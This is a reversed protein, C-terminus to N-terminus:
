DHGSEVLQMAISSDALFRRRLATPSGLWSAYQLAARLYLGIDCEETFGMAGHLQVAQKAVERAADSCRAKAAYVASRLDSAEANAANALLQAAEHWTANALEVELLLDVCRHKVSQFSAIPRGFQVRQNVYDITHQLCSRAIGALQASAAVRGLAIANQVADNAASGAILPEAERTQVSDFYVDCFSSQATAYREISIGEANADVAVVVPSGASHAYVLLVSDDELATVFRKRGSLRGQDIRTLPPQENITLSVQNAQEQWALSFLIEGSLLGEALAQAANTQAANLLSAPMLAAAIYPQAFLHKGFVECLSAAVSANMGSGGLREELSLGLWGLEAMSTWLKCDIALAKGLDGRQKSLDNQSSVFDEASQCLLQVIEETENM